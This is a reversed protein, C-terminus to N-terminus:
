KRRKAGYIIQKNSMCGEYQLGWLKIFAEASSHDFTDKSTYTALAESYTSNPSERGALVAQGAQLEFRVKGNILHQHAAFFSQIAERLPTFWFGYYILESYKDTLIRKFHLYERDLVLDELEAHGRLLLEAAPAEYVERSKIGVVRNEVMDMRGIGYSGALANLKDLMQVLSMAKGNIKVPVGKSFTIEVKQKGKKNLGNKTFIYAAEPVPKGPDELDGGEIALGWINKDISYVSKKTVTIPIKNKLAYEIEEERSHFEWERLPAIIRLTPDLARVGLEIRVQDNGKGTCGHAVYQAKELHAIRVLHKAILPRGLSTAMNYKGEYRAHGWIAPTIFDKAFEDKLDEIYIKSAGAALARRRLDAKDSVEGIFASFCVVDVQYKDKLWKVCCSTDLGGSYALVVKKKM